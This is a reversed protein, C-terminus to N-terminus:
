VAQLARLVDLVGAGQFNSDRGLDTATSCLIRKVREPQGVLETHRAILMAAAGSVHPAAFSTGSDKRVDAEGYASQILDGPALLDPKPRGDATPGKSSFYSAGHRHLERRHTAGVTIAEEANGPDTISIAAYGKGASAQHQGLTWGANGAAVVVVVGSHILRKVELCVPTWGCAQNDSPDYPLSLSINVGAIVPEKSRGNIHRIYRLAMLVRSEWATDADRFVRLDWLRLDPCIGDVSALQHHKRGALIAAVQTGHPTPPPRYLPSPPSPVTYKTALDALHDVPDALDLGGQATDLDEGAIAAFDVTKTVRITEGDAALFSANRQEIGSDVVAWTLRSCDIDFVNYAADAKVARRSFAVAPFVRRDLTVAAISPQWWATTPDLKAVRDDVRWPPQGLLQRLHEVAMKWESSLDPDLGWMRVVVDALWQWRRDRAEPPPAGTRFDEMAAADSLRAELMALDRGWPTLPLVVRVLDALDVTAVVWDGIPLARFGDREIPPPPQKVTFWPRVSVWRDRWSPTSPTGIDAEHLARLNEVIQFANGGRGESDGSREIDDDDHEDLAGRVFRQLLLDLRAQPGRLAFERWVERRVPCLHADPDGREAPLIREFKEPSM